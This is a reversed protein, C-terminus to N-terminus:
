YFFRCLLSWIFWLIHKRRILKGLIKNENKKYQEVVDELTKDADLVLVPVTNFREDGSMLWMEHSEHLQQLYELKLGDEEPRARQKIREYVIEPTSRLYVTFFYIQPNLLWM